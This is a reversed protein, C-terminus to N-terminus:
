PKTQTKKCQKNEGKRYRPKQEFTMHDDILDQMCVICANLVRTREHIVYHGESRSITTGCIDCLM